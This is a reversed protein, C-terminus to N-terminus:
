FLRTLFMALDNGLPLVKPSNNSEFPIGIVRGNTLGETKFLICNACIGAALLKYEMNGLVRAGNTFVCLLKPWIPLRALKPFTAPKPSIPKCSIGFLPLTGIRNLLFM